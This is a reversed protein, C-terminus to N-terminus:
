PSPMDFKANIERAEFSEYRWHLQPNPAGWELAKIIPYSDIMMSTPRYPSVIPYLVFGMREKRRVIGPEFIHPFQNRIKVDAEMEIFVELQFGDSM